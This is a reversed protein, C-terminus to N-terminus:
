LMFFVRIFWKTVHYQASKKYQLTCCKYDDCKVLIILLTKFNILFKASLVLCSYFLSSSLLVNPRDMHLSPASCVSTSDFDFKWWNDDTENLSIINLRLWCTWQSLIKIMQICKACPQVQKMWLLCSNNVTHALCSCVSIYNKPTLIQISM